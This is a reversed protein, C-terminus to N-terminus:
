VTLSDVTTKQAVVFFIIYGVIRNVLEITGNCRPREILKLLVIHIKRGKLEYCIYRLLTYENCERLHDSANHSHDFKHFVCM